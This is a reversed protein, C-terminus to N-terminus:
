DYISGLHDPSWTGPRPSEDKDQSKRQRGELESIEDTAAHAPASRAVHRPNIVPKLWGIAAAAPGVSVVTEQPAPFPSPERAALQAHTSTPAALAAPGLLLLLGSIALTHKAINLM